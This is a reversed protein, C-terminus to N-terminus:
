WSYAPSSCNRNLSRRWCAGAVFAPAGTHEIAASLVLIAAVSVTAPHSFGSFAEPPTLIGTILLALLALLATVDPSVRESVFGYIAGALILLTLLAKVAEPSIPLQPM